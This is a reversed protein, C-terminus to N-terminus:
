YKTTSPAPHMQIHKHNHSSPAMQVHKTPAAQMYVRRHLFPHHFPKSAVSTSPEAGTAAPNAMTPPASTGKPTQATTAGGGQAIALSTSGVLLVFVALGKLTIM